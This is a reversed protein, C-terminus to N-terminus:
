LASHDLVEFTHDSYVVIIKVIKRQSNSSRKAKLDDNSYISKEKKSSSEMCRASQQIDPSTNANASDFYDNRDQDLRINKSIGNNRSSNNQMEFSLSENKSEHFDSNKYEENPIEREIYENKSYFMEGEEFLLWMINLSPFARHIKTIFENSIKQNRGNLIQSLSGKPIGAQDAFQSLNKGSQKLFINLRDVINM